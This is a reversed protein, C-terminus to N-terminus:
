YDIKWTHKRQWTQLEMGDLTVTARLRRHEETFHRHYRHGGIVVSEDRRLLLTSGKRGDPSTFVDAGVVAPVEAGDLYVKLPKYYM